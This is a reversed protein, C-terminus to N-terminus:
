RVTKPTHPSYQRRIRRAEDAIDSLADQLAAIRRKVKTKNRGQNDDDVDSTEVESDHYWQILPSDDSEELGRNIVPQRHLEDQQEQRQQNIEITKRGTESEQKDSEEVKEAVVQIVLSKMEAIVQHCASCHSLDPVCSSHYVHGCNAVTLSRDAPNAPPLRDLRPGPWEETNTVLPRWCRACHAQEMLKLKTLKTAKVLRVQMVNSADEGCSEKDDDYYDSNM